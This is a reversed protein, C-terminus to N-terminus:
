PKVDDKSKRKEEIIHARQENVRNKHAMMEGFSEHDEQKHKRHLEETDPMFKQRDFSLVSIILLYFSKFSGSM